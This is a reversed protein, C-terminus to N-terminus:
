HRRIVRARIKLASHPADLERFASEYTQTYRDPHILCRSPVNDSVQINDRDIYVLPKSQRTGNEFAFRSLALRLFQIPQEPERSESVVHM